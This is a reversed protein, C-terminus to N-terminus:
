TLRRDSHTRNGGTSRVASSRSTTSTPSGRSSTHTPSDIGSPVPLAIAAVVNETVTILDSVIIFSTVRFQTTESVTVIESVTIPFYPSFLVVSESVTVNESTTIFSTVLLNLSETITVSESVAIFSAVLLQTSESVTISDSVTISVAGAAVLVVTVSESVTITESVNIFSTVLQQTAETITVTDSVSILSVVVVSTSETVTITDNVNIYSIVQLALSESVTVSDSVAIFSTILLQTSETVTISDSVNISFTGLAEVAVNTSETVTINESVNIFSTVLLQTSETVTVNDSVNVLSILQATTSESVTISDSVAIFNTSVLSVSETVTISESVSVFSVVQLQVAETLTVTESVAVVLFPLFVVVSETVTVNDSVNIFSTVQVKLSETVTISDNVNVLSVVVVSTSETVTISDSVNIQHALTANVSETVTVSESKNIFSVVQLQVNESVTVTDSKNIETVSSLYAIEIGIGIARDPRVAAADLNSWNVTTTPATNDYQEQLNQEFFGDTTITENVETFGSGSAINTGPTQLANAVAGFTSSTVAPSSDLTLSLTSTSTVDGIKNQPVPTVQHVRTVETIQQVGKRRGEAFTVTVTGAGPSAPVIAYFVSLRTEDGGGNDDYSDTVQTWSWSGSHTNSISNNGTPGVVMETVQTVILLDGELPTFSASVQSTVDGADSFEGATVHKFTMPLFASVSETVTISDSVNVLSVLTPKSSETVTVTDSVNIEFAERLELAIGCADIMSNTWTWDVTTDNTAKFEAEMTRNPVAGGVQALETFGSGETIGENLRLAMVGFTANAVAQFANDLTVTLGTGASGLAGTKSQVIANIGNTGGLATNAFEILIHSCSTQNPVFGFAISPTSTEGAAFKAYFLSLRTTDLSPTLDVLKTWTAGTGQIDVVQDATTTRSNMVALVYFRDSRFTTEAVAYGVGDTGDYASALVTATIAM